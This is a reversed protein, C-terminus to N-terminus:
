RDSRTDLQRDGAAQEPSRYPPAGHPLATQTARAGSASSSALAIGLNAVVPQVDQWLNNEPQLDRHSVGARHAYDLAAGIAMTIRLAEDIPLERERALRARLTEGRVYPMVYFFVGNSVGSDFLPLLNPHQLKATVRIEALFREAGLSA